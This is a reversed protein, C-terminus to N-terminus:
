AGKMENKIYKEIIEVAKILKIGVPFNIKKVYKQFIKCNMADRSKRFFYSIICKYFNIITCKSQSNNGM